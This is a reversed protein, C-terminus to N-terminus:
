ASPAKSRVARRCAGYAVLAVVLIAALAPFLWYAHPFGGGTGGPLPVVDGDGFVLLGAWAATPAGADIRAARAEALAAAVSRGRTISRSFGDMFVAAEDDRLPWPSGVVALAGAQFFARALGLVGEGEVVTGSASRCATLLVVKGDLDLGVIDRLADSSSDV